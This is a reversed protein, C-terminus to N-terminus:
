TGHERVDHQKARLGLKGFGIPLRHERRQVRGRRSMGIQAATRDDAGANRWPAPYSGSIVASKGNAAM